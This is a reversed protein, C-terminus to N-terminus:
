SHSVRSSLGHFFLSWYECAIEIRGSASKMRLRYEDLVAGRELDLDSQSCRIKCAFEAFIELGKELLGPKDTPLFFEYVTEDFSTYANTCAGFSAGISELYKVVDHREFSETASFALHELIHSVGHERDEELVSGTKVALAMSARSGPKKSPRIFYSLGNPLVGHILDSPLPLPAQQTHIFSPCPVLRKM